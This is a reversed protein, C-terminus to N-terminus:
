SKEYDRIKKDTTIQDRLERVQKKIAEIKPRYIEAIRPKDFVEFEIDTLGDNAKQCGNLM